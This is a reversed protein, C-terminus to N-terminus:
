VELCCYCGTLLEFGLDLFVFADLFFEIEEWWGGLDVFEDARDQQLLLPTFGYHSHLPPQLKNLLLHVIGEYEEM